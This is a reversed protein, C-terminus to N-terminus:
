PYWGGKKIVIEGLELCILITDTIATVPLIFNQYVNWKWLFGLAILLFLVPVTVFLARPNFM